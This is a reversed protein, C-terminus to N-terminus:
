NFSAWMKGVLAKSLTAWVFWLFLLNQKGLCCFLVSACCISCFATCLICDALSLCRDEAEVMVCDSVRQLVPLIPCGCLLFYYAMFALLFCVLMCHMTCSHGIAGQVACESAEADCKIQDKQKVYLICLWLTLGRMQIVLVLFLILM